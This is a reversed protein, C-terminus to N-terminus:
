HRFSNYIEMHKFIVNKVDFEKEAKVRSNAGMQRILEHNLILKEIAYALEKTSYVPVKYGNIREDVCERCGIADTTVIARGIACAELLSKPMGERYSPLVVIHSDQYIKVMEKQYGIWKVYNGDQWDELYTHPVGAKNGDDAMGCLLIQIRNEYKEKLIESAARLENVGKDWLMRAPFLVKILDFSPLSSKPYKILDVGSGKIKVISNTGSIINLDLFAKKDNENQFIITLNNRKFGIRLFQIMIKQVLGKRDATFNYGLGSVANIVGKLKFLRSILTGYIVPKLTINHVLDPKIENYIKYFKFLTSLESIPNIGSRSFPFDIFKIGKSTIENSRGTDECAVIVEFGKKVAEEAIILRHSIFFWDVNVVFLLKDKM